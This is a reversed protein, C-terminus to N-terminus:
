WVIDLLLMALNDIGELMSLSVVSFSEEALLLEGLACQVLLLCCCLLLLYYLVSCFRPFCTKHMMM